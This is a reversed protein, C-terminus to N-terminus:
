RRASLAKRNEEAEFASFDGRAVAAAVPDAPDASRASLTTPPAPATTVLKAAPGASATGITTDVLAELKGLARLASIPALRVIREVEQPHTALYLALEPGVESEMLADGIPTGSRIYGADYGRDLFAGATEVFEPTKAAFADRRQIWTKRKTEFSTQAEREAAKKQEAAARQDYRWDARADIFDEFTKAENGATALWIDFAPFTEPTGTAAPTTKPEAVPAKAELEKLRAELKEARQEAEARSRIADNIEQQKAHEKQQRKSLTKEPDTRVAPETTVAVTATPEAAIAALEEDPDADPDATTSVKAPEPWIGTLEWSARDESSLANLAAQSNEIPTTTAAPESM